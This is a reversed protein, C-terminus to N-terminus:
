NPNTLNVLSPKGIHRMEYGSFFLLSFLFILSVSEPEQYVEVEAKVCIINSDVTSHPFESLRKELKKIMDQVTTTKKFTFFVEGLVEPRSKFIHDLLGYKMDNSLFEDKHSQKCEKGDPCTLGLYYFKCPFESHMEFCHEIACRGTMAYEQCLKDVKVTITPPPSPSPSVAFNGDAAPVMHLEGEYRMSKKSKKKKKRSKKNRTEQGSEDSSSSKRWNTNMQYQVPLRFPYKIPQLPPSAGRKFVLEDENMHNEDEIKQDSAM